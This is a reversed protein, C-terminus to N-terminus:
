TWHQKLFALLTKIRLNDKLDRHYVFWLTSKDQPNVDLDLIVLRPDLDIMNNSVLGLGMGEVIASHIDRFSNSQYVVQGNPIHQTLAKVSRLQRKKGNPLIWKHHKIDDISTPQGFEAIYEKSGGIQLRFDKLHHAILDPETIAETIRLAVHAEGSMLPVREDTAIIQIRLEPYDSQFRKLLPNLSVSFDSVTSIILDGSLSNESSTIKHILHQVKGHIQPMDSILLHGAETLRYGRQHRIFLKTSLQSELRNVHRLVTAHNVDLEEAAKTLTGSVAVQHAIRLDNWDINSV